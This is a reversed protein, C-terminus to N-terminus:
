RDQTDTYNVDAQNHIKKLEEINNFQYHNDDKYSPIIMEKTESTDIPTINITPISNNIKYRAKPINVRLTNTISQPNINNKKDLNLQDQSELNGDQIKTLNKSEDPNLSETKNNKNEQWKILASIPITDILGIQIRRTIEEDSLGYSVISSKSQSNQNIQNDIPIFINNNALAFQFNIMLFLNIILLYNKM